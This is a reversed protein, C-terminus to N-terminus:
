GDVGLPRSNILSRLSGFFFINVVQPNDIFSVTPLGGTATLFISGQDTQADSLRKSFTCQVDCFQRNIIETM